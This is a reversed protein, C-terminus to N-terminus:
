LGNQHERQYERHSYFLTYVVIGCVPILVFILSIPQFLIGLFAILGALKFLKGGIRHTKNWVTDSRMTWPTRIGCFGNRKTKELLIGLYFWLVGFLIPFTANPSVKFGLNWFISQLDIALFFLCILIIFGDYYSRFSRVNDPFPDFRPVVTLITVLFGMVVPVLFLGFSKPLYGDVEGSFNWHSAYNEPLQPYFYFGILFTLIVITMAAIDAKKLMM